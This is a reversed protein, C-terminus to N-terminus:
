CKIKLDNLFDKLYISFKIEAYIRKPFKKMKPTRIRNANM